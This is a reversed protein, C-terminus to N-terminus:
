KLGAEKVLRHIYNAAYDQATYKSAARKAAKEEKPNNLFGFTEEFEPKVVWKDGVKMGVNLKVTDDNVQLGTEKNFKFYHAELEGKVDGPKVKASGRVISGNALQFSFEPASCLLTLYMRTLIATEGPNMVKEVKTGVYKGTAPDKTYVETLYKIPENGINKVIYGVVQSVTNLAKQVTGDEKVVEAEKSRVINGADGFGLVNVVEISNSLRNLKKDFDPDTAVTERLLERMLRIKESKAKSKEKDDVETEVTEEVTIETLNDLINDM